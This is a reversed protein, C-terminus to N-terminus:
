RKYAESAARMIDKQTAEPNEELYQVRFDRLFSVWKNNRSERPVRDPDSRANLRDIVKMLAKEKTKKTKGKMDALDNLKELLETSFKWDITDSM